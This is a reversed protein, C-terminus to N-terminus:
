ATGETTDAPSVARRQELIAAIWAKLLDSLTQEDVDGQLWVRVGDYECEIRPRYEYPILIRLAREDSVRNRRESL